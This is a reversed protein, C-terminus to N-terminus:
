WGLKGRCIPGIGYAVSVENTLERNCVACRCTEAAYATTAAKQAEIGGDILDRCSDCVLDFDGQGVTRNWQKVEGRATVFACGTGKGGTGSYLVKDSKGEQWHDAITFVVGKHCYHANVPVAKAAVFPKVPEPDTLGPLGSDISGMIITETLADAAFEDIVGEWVKRVGNWRLGAAKAPFPVNAKFYEQAEAYTSRVECVGTTENYDIQM